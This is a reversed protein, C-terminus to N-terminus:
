HEHVVLSSGLACPRGRYCRRFRLSASLFYAPLVRAAAGCSPNPFCARGFNRGTKIEKTTTTM